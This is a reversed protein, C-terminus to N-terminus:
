GPDSELARLAPFEAVDYCVRFLYLGHGPATADAAERRGAALIRPIDAPELRGLGVAVLTGVVIRAMHQLFGSAEMEIRLTGDSWDGSELEIRRMTRVPSAAACDAARFASFDQEGLMARAAEQMAPLDLLSRIWWARGRAFVPPYRRNFLHYRYIKGIASHRAHFRPSVPILHKVSIAPGALGNLSAQLKHLDQSPSVRFNAVQNLAHVGADTRGSGYVKIEQGTITRLAEELRGQVTPGHPQFQWGQFSGGDYSLVMALNQREGESHPASPPPLTANGSGSPESSM